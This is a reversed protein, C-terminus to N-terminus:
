GVIAVAERFPLSLVTDGAHDTVEICHDLNLYGERVDEAAMDRAYGLALEHASSQDPLEKGEEDRSPEDNFLHFYFRPMSPWRRYGNAM